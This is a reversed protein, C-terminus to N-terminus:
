FKFKFKSKRSQNQQKSSSASALNERFKLALEQMLGSAMESAEYEAEEEYM